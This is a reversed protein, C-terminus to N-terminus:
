MNQNNEISENDVTNKINKNNMFVENNEINKANQLLIAGFGAPKFNGGGSCRRSGNPMMRTPAKGFPLPNDDEPTIKWLGVRFKLLNVVAKCCGNHIYKINIV